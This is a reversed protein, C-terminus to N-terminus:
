DSPPRLARILSAPLSILATYALVVVALIIPITLILGLWFKAGQGRLELLGLDFWFDLAFVGAVLLVAGAILLIAVVLDRFFSVGNPTAALTPPVSTMRSLADSWEKARMTAGRIKAKKSTDAGYIVHAKRADGYDCSVVFVRYSLIDM